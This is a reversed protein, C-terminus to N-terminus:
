KKEQKPSFKSNADSYTAWHRESIKLNNPFIFLSMVAKPAGFLQEFEVFTCVISIQFKSNQFKEKSHGDARSLFTRPSNVFFISYLVNKKYKTKKHVDRWIELYNSSIQIDKPQKNPRLNSTATTVLMQDRKAIRFGREKGSEVKMTALIIWAVHCQIQARSFYVLRSRSLDAGYRLSLIVFVVKEVVPSLLLEWFVLFQSFKRIKKPIKKFNGTLRM